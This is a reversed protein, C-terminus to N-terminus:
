RPKRRGAKELAFVFEGKGVPEGTLARASFGGKMLLEGTAFLPEASGGPVRVFYMAGEDLGKPCIREGDGEGRFFAAGLVLARNESVSVMGEATGGLAYLTGYEAARRYKEYFALIKKIREAGEASLGGGPCLGPAGFLAVSSVAADDARLRPSLASQPYAASADRLPAETRFRRFFALLGPSPTGEAEFLVGPFKETLRFLVACLGEKCRSLVGEEGEPLALRWQLCAAKTESVLVSVTRIIYKQVRADSLELPVRGASPSLRRSVFEPHKKVIPDDARVSEPSLRLGFRLGRARLEESIEALAAGDEPEADFLFLGAGAEAWREADALVKEKERVGGAEVAAPLERERWKGRVVRRAFFTRLARCAGEKDSAFVAAAEPSFLEEGPLLPKDPLYEGGGAFVRTRFPMERVREEGKGVGLLCLAYTGNKGEWFAPREATSPSFRGGFFDLALSDLRRVAVERRGGNLLRSSFVVADCDDFVTCYVFLRLKAKEEAFELCLTQADKASFDAYSSPLPSIVPKETLRARQFSFDSCIGGDALSCCVFGEAGCSFIPEEAGSFLRGYDSGPVALKGGYYLYEAAGEARVLLTTSPTDLKYVNGKRRIM